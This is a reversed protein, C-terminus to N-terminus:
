WREGHDRNEVDDLDDETHTDDKENEHVRALVGTQRAGEADSAPGPGEAATREHLAVEVAPRNGEREQEHDVRDHEDLDGSQSRRSPASAGLRDVLRLLELPSFPKTLFLSAGAEVALRETRESQAATLMVITTERTTPHARLRRCTEIGDLGPMDVDLFVILPETDRALELAAHGDAAGHLEFAAVGELTAAVLNRICRDDDVVLVARNL